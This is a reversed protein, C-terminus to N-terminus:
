ALNGAATTGIPSAPAKKRHGATFLVRCLWFIMVVIVAFVPVLNLHTKLIVDPILRQKGLFFSFTAILLGFCMRWLHRAIRLAGSIGNHLLLRVDLAACLVGVSGFVFYPAPPYGAKLGSASTAAEWGFLLSAAGQALAILLLGFELLGTEGEKRSVTLWGSAVLYFTLVGGLVNGANPKIFAAIYAGTGAMTLMSVFFVNGAVRHGRFGKRFVLAAGGSLLGAVAGCIHLFLLISFTM